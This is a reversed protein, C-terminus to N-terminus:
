RSTRAPSTPERWAEPFLEGGMPDGSQLGPAPVHARVSEMELFTGPRPAYCADDGTYRVALARRRRGATRNGPAGHITLPHHILVDGPALTWSILENEGGGADIDPMPPYPSAAFAGANDPDFAQPRFMRVWRHSGRVYAVGGNEPGVEDFPAWISIVQDGSVPWYPLDQRWPMPEVSGPEKVFLQDYFLNVRSSAMLRAALAPLPSAFAFARFEDNRRWLFFDGYFRGAARGYEAATPSGAALEAEIAVRIREVWALPVIGRAVEAGDERLARAVLDIEDTV